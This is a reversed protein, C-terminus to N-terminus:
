WRESVSKGEFLEELRRRAGPDTGAPVDDVAFFGQEAIEANPKPVRPQEWERVVFLAIHDGPFNDANSFLGHLEPKESLRVGAEEELERGLAVLLTESREVGGGPFHWGPRYGHRVLLVNSHADIVVGQAGLTLGRTLRWLPRLIDTIIKTRKPNGIM